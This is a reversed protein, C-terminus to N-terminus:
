HLRRRHTKAGLCGRPWPKAPARLRRRGGLRQPPRRPRGRSAPTAGSGPAQPVARHGRQAPHAVEIAAVVDVHLEPPCSPTTQTEVRDAEGYHFRVGDNRIRGLKSWWIPPVAIRRSCTDLLTAYANVSQAIENKRPPASALSHLMLQGGGSQLVVLSWRHRLCEHVVDDVLGTMAPRM